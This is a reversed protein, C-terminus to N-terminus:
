YPSWRSRCEKGVRREESRGHLAHLFECGAEPEIILGFRSGFEIARDEIVGFDGGDGMVALSTELVVTAGFARHQSHTEFEIALAEGPEIAARHELEVFRNRELDIALSLFLDVM